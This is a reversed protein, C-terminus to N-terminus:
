GGVVSFLPEFDFCKVPKMGRMTRNENEIDISLNITRLEFKSWSIKNQICESTLKQLKNNLYAIVHTNM